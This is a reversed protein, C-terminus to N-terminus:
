GQAIVYVNVRPSAVSSSNRCRGIKFTAGVKLDACAPSLGPAVDSILVNGMRSIEM